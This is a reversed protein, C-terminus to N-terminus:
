KEFYLFLTSRLSDLRDFPILTKTTASTLFAGKSILFELCRNINDISSQIKKKENKLVNSSSSSSTLSNNNQIEGMSSSSSNSFLKLNSYNALLGSELPNINHLIEVNKYLQDYDEFERVSFSSSSRLSSSINGFADCFPISASALHINVKTRNILFKVCSFCGNQVALHLASNGNYDCDDIFILNEYKYFLRKLIYYNNTRCSYMIASEKFNGFVQNINIIDYFQKLSDFDKQDIWQFIHDKLSSIEEENIDEPDTKKVMELVVSKNANHFISNFTQQVIQRSNPILGLAIETNSIRKWLKSFKFELKDATYNTKCNRLIKDFVDPLYLSPLLHSLTPIAAIKASPHDNSCYFKIIASFMSGFSKIDKRKGDITAISFGFDILKVAIPSRKDLNVVMVNDPKLDNHIIAPTQSHLYCLARSIDLAIKVLIIWDMSKENEHKILTNLLTGGECLELALSITPELVFGVIRVINPHSLKCLVSVEQCFDRILTEDIADSRFVKWAVKLNKWIASYVVGSKGSGIESCIEIDKPDFNDVTSFFM